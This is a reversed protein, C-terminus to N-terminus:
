KNITEGMAKVEPAYMKEIERKKLKMTQTLERGIIFENPMIRFEQLRSSQNFSPNTNVLRKVEQGYLAQIQPLMVLEQKNGSYQISNEKCYRELAGFNPGLLVGLQKWDQGVIVVYQIFDSEGLAMEIKNPNVNEGSLLVIIDKERGTIHLNAQTDFYARDGTNMYGDKLVQATAEPNDYYGKMIIPGKIHLVGEAPKKDTHNIVVPMKPDAPDTYRCEALVEGTAPDVIKAELNDLIPGVTGFSKRDTRRIAMVPSTETMGYGEFLPIRANSFFHDLYKPLAAGGSIALKLRGGTKKRLKDYITKDAILHPIFELIKKPDYDSLTCYDESAKLAFNVLLRQLTPLENVKKMAHQYITEWIRPVSAFLTPQEREMDQLFLKVNTYHTQTGAILGVYKVHREFVHWPPLISLIKDDPTVSLRRISGEVDSVYNQHTLMVGKSNGTTGSTYIISAIDDPEITPLGKKPRIHKSLADIDPIDKVPDISLFRKGPNTAKVKEFTKQNEVIIVEAGSHKIIYDLEEATADEGRPVDILGAYNIALSIPLWQPHNGAFLAVRDGKKLDLSLFSQAYEQVRAHLEQFSINKKIDGERFSIATKRGKQELSDVLDKLTNM